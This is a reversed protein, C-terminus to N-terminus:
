KIVKVSKDSNKAWPIVYRFGFSESVLFGDFYLGIVHRGLIQLIIVDQM